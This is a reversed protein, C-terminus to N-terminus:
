DQPYKYWGLNKCTEIDDSEKVTISSLAKDSTKIYVYSCYRQADSSGANKTAAQPTASPPNADRALLLLIAVIVASCCITLLIKM